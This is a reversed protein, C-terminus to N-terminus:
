APHFALFSVYQLAFSTTFGVAANLGFADPFAEQSQSHISIRAGASEMMPLYEAQNSKLLVRLGLFFFFVFSYEIKLNECALEALRGYLPGARNSGYTRNANFEFCNGYVPDSKTVFDSYLGFLDKSWYWLGYDSRLKGSSVVLPRTILM